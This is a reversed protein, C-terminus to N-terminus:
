LQRALERHRVRVEPWDARLLGALQESVFVSRHQGGTCGIGITLYSRQAGSFEPLWRQLMEHIDDLFSKVLPAQQLYDVVERDQGTLTRLEPVWHPNPLCRADFLFDLDPPLGRSFAFSEVLLAPQRQQISVGNWIRQRLDHISCTSTDITIDAQSSLPELLNRETAIAEPLGSDAAIPHRRRTASFRQLLTQDTATLFILQVRVSAARLEELLSQFRRPDRSRADLGVACRPYQEQAVTMLKVLDLVLPAPLNDVCYYGLDELAQLATTKGSGSLGSIIMLEAQDSDRPKAPPSAEGNDGNSHM